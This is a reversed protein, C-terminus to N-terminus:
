KKHPNHALIEKVQYEHILYYALADIDEKQYLWANGSLNTPELGLIGITYALKNPTIGTYNSVQKLTYLPEDSISSYLIDNPSNNLHNKKVILNRLETLKQIIIKM